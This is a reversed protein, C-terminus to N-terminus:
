ENVCENVVDRDAHNVKFKKIGQDALKNKIDKIEELFLKKVRLTDDICVIEVKVKCQM